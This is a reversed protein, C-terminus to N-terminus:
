KRSAKKIPNTREYPNSPTPKIAAPDGNTASQPQPDIEFPDPETQKPLLTSLADSYQESLALLTNTAIPKSEDIHRLINWRTRKKNKYTDETGLIQVERGTFSHAADSAPDLTSLDRSAFGLHRLTQLVWGPKLATGMTGPTITMFITLPTPTYGAPLVAGDIGAYPLVTMRLEPNSASNTTMVHYLIRAKYRGPELKAM